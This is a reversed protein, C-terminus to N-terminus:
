IANIVITLRFVWLKFFQLESVSVVLVRVTVARQSNCGLYQWTNWSSTCHRSQGVRTCKQCHWQEASPVVLISNATEEKTRDRTSKDSTLWLQTLAGIIDAASRNAYIIPSFLLCSKLLFPLSISNRTSLSHCFISVRQFKDSASM